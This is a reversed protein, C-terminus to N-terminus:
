GSTKSQTAVIIPVTKKLQDCITQLDHVWEEYQVFIYIPYPKLFMDDAITESKQILPMLELSLREFHPCISSNIYLHNNDVTIVMDDERLRKM